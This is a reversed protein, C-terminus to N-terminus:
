LDGGSPHGCGKWHLGPFEKFGRIPFRGSHGRIGADIADQVPGAPVLGQTIIGNAKEAVATEVLKAMEEPSIGQPGVWDGKVGLETCAKEFGNKAILWVPHALPPVRYVFHLPKETNPVEKSGSAALPSLALVALLLLGLVRKM